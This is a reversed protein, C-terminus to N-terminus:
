KGDRGIGEGRMLRENTLLSTAEIRKKKQKNGHMDTQSPKTNINEGDAQVFYFAFRLDNWISLAHCVFFIAIAPFM